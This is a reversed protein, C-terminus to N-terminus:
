RAAGRMVDIPPDLGTWVRFSAAGQQVLVELGDVATASRERAVRVLETEASGYVLDVVVQGRHFGAASLRLAALESTPRASGGALAMGVGSSSSEQIATRSCM